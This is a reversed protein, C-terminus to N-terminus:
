FIDLMHPFIGPDPLVNRPSVFSFLGLSSVIACLLRSKLHAPIHTFSILEPEKSLTLGDNPNNNSPEPGENMKIKEKEEDSFFCPIVTNRVESNKVVELQM